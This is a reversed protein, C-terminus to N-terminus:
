FWRWARQLWRPIRHITPRYHQRLSAPHANNM